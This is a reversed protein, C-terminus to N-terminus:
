GVSRSPKHDRTIRSAAGRDSMRPAKMQRRPAAGLGIVVGLAFLTVAMSTGGYSVLPATLGTLPLLRLTGGVILIGQVGLMLAIGIGIYTALETKARLALVFCRLILLVILCLTAVAAAAGFRSGIAILVFDTQFEPVRAVAEMSPAGLVGGGALAYDGQVFQYGGTSPASWHDLWLDTRARVRPVTAYAFGLALLVIGATLAAGVRSWMAGAAYCAAVLGIAAAMGLDNQWALVATAILVGVALPVLHPAAPMAMGAVHWSGALHHRKSFLYIAMFTTLLLRSLEGPQFRVSGLELWLRAGNVATGVLITTATLLLGAIAITYPYNCITELHQAVAGGVVFVAYGAAVFLAQRTALTEFFGSDTEVEQGSTYLVVLSLSTLMATVALLLVDINRWLSAMLIWAIVPAMLALLTIALEFRFLSGIGANLSAQLVGVIGVLMPLLLLQVRELKGVWHNM